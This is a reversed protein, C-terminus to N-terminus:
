LTLLWIISFNLHESMVKRTEALSLARVNVERHQRHTAELDPIDIVLSKLSIEGAHNTKFDM